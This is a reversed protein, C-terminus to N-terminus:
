LFFTDMARSDPLILMWCFLRENLHSSVRAAYIGAAVLNVIAMWGMWNLSMRGVQTEWGYLVIGHSVYLLSSLGFAVYFMV